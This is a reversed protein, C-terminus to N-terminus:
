VTVVVRGAARRERLHRFAEPADDLPFTGGVIPTVVGAEILEGLHRLDGEGPKSLLGRLNQRVFPSMLQARLQRDAGQLWKGGGEGGVIVLAGRPTLARRLRSLSRNGAIDLVLDYRRTGDTVDERTYDVVDDAGISRVLDANRTGCVGTVHAGSAKALQVAFTGVSGSAGIVLVKRGEGPQGGARLAHLAACASGPVAAAQEFTVNAPKPELRDQRTSAYAAFSGDCSGFVEDGPRFRTVNAGVAEVTGALDLGVVRVKPRRLGFGGLRVAYPLGTVLHWVGHDVGAARVRVLVDDAGAVPEDVDALKLEDPSCYTDRVMAKM